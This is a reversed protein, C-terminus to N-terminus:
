GEAVVDRGRVTLAWIVLIDIVIMLISWVPYYPIFLFNAVASVMAVIVGITRAWVNGGFLGFGALVLLIGIGLHIWGWLTTDFKFAYNDGVVYFNDKLIAALGAIAQFVGILMLMFAAFYTFGVAWGSREHAM